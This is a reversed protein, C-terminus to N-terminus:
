YTSRAEVLMYLLSVCECFNMARSVDVFVYLLVERCNVVWVVEVVFLLM